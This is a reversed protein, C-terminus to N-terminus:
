LLKLFAAETIIEISHGQQQLHIAQRWKSSQQMTSDYTLQSKESIVLINVNKTMSNSFFGGARLVQKAADSRRMGQLGGTFVVTKQALHILPEQPVYIEDDLTHLWKPTDDVSIIAIEALTEADSITFPISFSHAIHHLTFASNTPLQRKLFPLLSRHSFTPLLLGCSEFSEALCIAEYPQHFSLVTQQQLWNTLIPAFESFTPSHQIDAQEIGHISTYFPDFPQTTHIYTQLSDVIANNEVKALEIACISDPWQNATKVSLTIFNM